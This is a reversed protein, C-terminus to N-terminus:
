VSSMTEIVDRTFAKGKTSVGILATPKVAEITAVFDCSPPLRHAYRQQYPNLDKRSPEVLGHM